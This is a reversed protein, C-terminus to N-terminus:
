TSSRRRSAKLYNLKSSAPHGDVYGSPKVFSVAPLTGSDIDEYLNVTDQIQACDQHEDAM